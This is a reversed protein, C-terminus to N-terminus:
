SCDPCVGTLPMEMFCSGCVQGHREILNEPCIVHVLGDNGDYTVEDDPQIRVPCAHCTGAYRAAFTAM